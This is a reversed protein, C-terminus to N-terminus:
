FSRSFRIGVIEAGPNHKKLGANSVHLVNLSLDYDGFDYGVGVRTGFQLHGGLEHHRGWDSESLYVVGVGLEGFMGRQAAQYRLLPTVHFRLADDAKTNTYGVGVDLRTSLRGEYWSWPLVWGAGAEADNILNKGSPRTLAGGQFYASEQAMAPTGCAVCVALLSVVHGVCHAVSSRRSPRKSSSLTVNPDPHRTAVCGKGGEICNIVDNENM